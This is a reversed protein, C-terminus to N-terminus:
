PQREPEGERLREWLARIIVMSATDPHMGAGGCSNLLEINGQWLGFSNRVFMGLGFHFLDLDWEDSVDRVAQKGQDSLLTLLREVAAHVTRPWQGEQSDM